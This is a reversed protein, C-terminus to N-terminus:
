RAPKRTVRAGARPLAVQAVSAISALAEGHFGLTSLHNLDDDTALKSTAHREFALAAEAAPIGCGDDQVHILRRGGRAGGRPYRDRGTDLSNEILEKVASAPRKVVEGAAIQDAVEPALIHIPMSRNYWLPAPSRRDDSIIAVSDFTRHRAKNLAPGTGSLKGSQGLFPVVSRLDASTRGCRMRGALTVKHGAWLLSVSSCPLAVM